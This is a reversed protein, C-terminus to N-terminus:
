PILSNPTRVNVAESAIMSRVWERVCLRAARTSTRALPAPRPQVTREAQENGAAPEEDVRRRRDHREDDSRLVGTESV